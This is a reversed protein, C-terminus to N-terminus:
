FRAPENTGVLEFKDGVNIRAGAVGAADAPLLLVGFTPQPFGLSKTLTTLVAADREGSDPNAHTALCRVIPAEVRFATGGIRVNRGVWEQEEWPEFGDVAVNSRFRREDLEQGMADSLARLSARSHVSIYGPARDQFRAAFGDGSLTLPQNGPKGLRASDSSAALYQEIQAIIKPADRPVDGEVLVQGDEEIRVRGEAYTLRLRALTPFDQLCLGDGKPWYDLGDRDQPQAGRPFRFALVRDGVARGAATLELTRVAEPTFGKIPYRYLASVHAM